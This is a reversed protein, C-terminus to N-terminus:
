DASIKELVGRAEECDRGIQAILANLSEFKAEGRLRKIPRVRLTKGYIDRNFDLIHVEVQGIPVAFMPRIGINTASSLWPSAPGDEIIQVRTAYVGYGPHLIDGLQLNATPYGLERGRKDGPKVVGRIEWPWGLLDNATDMDGARLAHRIASSSFVVGDDDDSFKELIHVDLGADILTQASGKRLQGFCFDNGVIIHHTSLGNKLVQAIFQAPSLSAFDWDFDLTFLTDIGYTALIESKTEPTTLRFPPDDPRFLHRPHPEFTLVGCKKGLTQALKRAETILGQHGRHVGDFNGIAIVHDQAAKPLNSLTNYTKM